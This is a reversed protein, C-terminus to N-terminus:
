QELVIWYGGNAPGEREIEVGKMKALHWEITKASVGIEAAMEPITVRPNVRMMERIKVRTKVRTKGQNETNETGKGPSSSSQGIRLTLEVRDDNQGFHEKIEPTPWKNDAWGKKITDAGSGAREGGGIMEFMKHLASNRCISHGGEFFDEVSVLMTGPNSFYLRDPYREIVPGEYLRTSAHVICNVLAERVAKHATTEDQRYVGEMQFPTPLALFLKPLVRRYFQYLNPEWMGDPYVRDTWRINPDSSLKERFDVFYRPMVGMIALETGFMLVGALTFGKEGSEQDVRYGGLRQLFELDDLDNWAHGEHRMQFLQRYQRITTQDFDRELTFNKLIRSDQPNSLVMADAFMRSIEEKTCLYDGEHNRKFAQNPNGNIYVPKVDFPARPIVFVLVKKGDLDGEIVDKDMLLCHSVKGKNNACDWFTKKYKDVQEDTFGDPAFRHNKEKVGLVIVGGKTNAFASYTEWFSRPFGGLASKFEVETGEKKQCLGLIYPVFGKM